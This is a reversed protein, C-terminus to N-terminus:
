IEEPYKKLIEEEISSSFDRVLKIARHVDDHNLSVEKGDKTRGNRHIVDHRVLIERMLDSIDPVEIELGGELIPKVKHLRHWVFNQLYEEVEEKLKSVRGFISALKLSRSALDSNTTVFRRLIDENNAVWYKATDWLYSELATIAASHALQTALNTAAPPGTLNLTDEIARLREELATAPQTRDEVIISLYDDYELWEHEIPVWEDGTESWLDNILESMVDYDVVDGFREQIVDNPDYPGGRVFVYAGDHYPTDMVPDEYRDTFWRRMADIQQSKEAQRIWADDPEFPRQDLDGAEAPLELLDEEIHDNHGM